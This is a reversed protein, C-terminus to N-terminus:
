WSSFLFHKIVSATQLLATGSSEIFYVTINIVNEISKGNCLLTNFLSFLAAVIKDKLLIHM